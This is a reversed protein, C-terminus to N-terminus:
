WNPSGQPSVASLCGSGALRTMTSWVWASTAFPGETDILHGVDHLLSALILEEDAGAQQAHWACQEAHELKTVPEGFYQEGGSDRLLSIVEDIVSNTAAPKTATQMPGGM